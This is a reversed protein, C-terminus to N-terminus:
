YTRPSLAALTTLSVHLKRSIGIYSRRKEACFFFLGDLPSRNPNRAGLWNRTSFSCRAGILHSPWYFRVSRMQRVRFDEALFTSTIKFRRNNDRCSVWKVSLGWKFHQRKCFVFYVKCLQSVQFSLCPKSILKQYDSNAPHEHSTSM